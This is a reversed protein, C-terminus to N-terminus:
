PIIETVVRNGPASSVVISQDQLKGVATPGTTSFAPNAQQYMVNGSALINQTPMDWTLQNAFLKAQNQSGVGQAGGTLTAVRRQLDVLGQNATLIVNEKQHVIRVPQNSLITQTNLNWIAANSSMLLPPDISTLQINQTLTAIKTKLNVISKDAEVRDTVTKEKYREMQLRRDGIVVQEKIQWLLHETKMQLDPDKSIAAVQGLLEVQQKRTFYRGEKASAQLQPHDGKVNNRVILLDEKPRWELQDGKFVAGNRTDTAVIHGNLFVQQGDGLIEGKDASVQLVNKGDQFLDGTPKEVRAVKKDKTYVAQKAKVKWLPRGKEDAQDLTVNNFILSGEIQTVSTDKKLKNETRTQEKCASLFSVTFLCFTFALFRKVKAKKGQKKEFSVLQSDQNVLAPLVYSKSFSTTKLLNVELFTLQLSVKKRETSLVLPKLM